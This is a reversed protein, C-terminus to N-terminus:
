ISVLRPLCLCRWSSAFAVIYPPHPSPADRVFLPEGQVGKEFAFLVQYYKPTGNAHVSLQIQGDFHCTFVSLRLCESQIGAGRAGNVHLGVSYANSSTEWPVM